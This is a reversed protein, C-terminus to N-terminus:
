PDLYPLLFLLAVSVGAFIYLSISVVTWCCKRKKGYSIKCKRPFLFIFRPLNGSSNFKELHSVLERFYGTLGALLIFFVALGAPVYFYHDNLLGTNILRAVKYYAGSILAFTAIYVYATVLVWTVMYTIQMHHDRVREPGGILKELLDDMQLPREPESLSLWHAMSAISMLTFYRWFWTFFLGIASAGLIMFVGLGSIKGLGSRGIITAVGTLLISHALVMATFKTWIM